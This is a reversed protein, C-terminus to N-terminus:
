ARDLPSARKHVSTQLECSSFLKERRLYKQRCPPLARRRPGNERNGRPNFNARDRSPMARRDNARDIVPEFAIMSVFVKLRTVPHRRVMGALSMRTFIDDGERCESNDVCCCEILM